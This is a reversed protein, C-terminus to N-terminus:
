DNRQIHTDTVSAWEKKPAPTNKNRHLQFDNKPNKLHNRNKSPFNYKPPSFKEALKIDM